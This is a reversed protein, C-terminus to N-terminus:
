GRDRGRKTKVRWYSRVAASKVMTDALNSPVYDGLPLLAEDILMKIAEKQGINPNTTLIERMVNDIVAQHESISLRAAAAIARSLDFYKKGAAPV